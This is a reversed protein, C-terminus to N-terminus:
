RVLRLATVLAWAAGCLALGTGAAIFHRARHAQGGLAAYAIRPVFFVAGLAPAAPLLLAAAVAGGREAIGYVRTGNLALIPDPGQTRDRRAMQVELVLISGAFAATVVAGVAAQLEISTPWMLIVSQSSLGPILAIAAMSVVHMMQDLVFLALGSRTSARRARVSVWEVALHAIGALVVAPWARGIDGALSAATCTTVIGTHLLVARPSQRKAVVLRGPQFVFDGLIHGLYLGLFLAM